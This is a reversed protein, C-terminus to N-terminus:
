WRVGDARAAARANLVRWRVRTACAGGYAARTPAALASRERLARMCPPLRVVARVPAPAHQRCLAGHRRHCQRRRHAGLKDPGMKFLQKQKHKPQGRVTLVEDQSARPTTLTAGADLKHEGEKPAEKPIASLDLSFGTGSGPLAPKANEPMSMKGSKARNLRSNYAAPPASADKAPESSSSGTSAARSGRLM